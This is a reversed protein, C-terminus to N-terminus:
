SETVSEPIQAWQLGDITPLHIKGAADKGAVGGLRPGCWQKFHFAVGHRLAAERASRVWDAQAPRRKAPPASEDGVILWDIGPTIECDAGCTACCGDEDAKVADGCEQCAFSGTLAADWEPGSIHELLPEASVFRKVAPIGRLAAIRWLSSRAGCTVGLWVNHWPASATQQSQVGVSSWDASTQVWPLLAPMRETRKTLILWDLNPTRRILQWLETRVADMRANIDHDPHAEFVDAMSSCFVRDRRGALQAEEDWVLPKAWYKPGFFRRDATQGWHASGLRRDFVEAYCNDCEPATADSPPEEPSDRAAHTCGWWANFTHNTWSIKSNEM